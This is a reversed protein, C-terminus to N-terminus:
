YRQSYDKVMREKSTHFARVGKKSCNGCAFTLGYTCKNCVKCHWERWDRCKNCIACHSTCNGEVLSERCFSYFFGYDQPQLWHKFGRGRLARQEALLLDDYIKGELADEDTDWTYRERGWGQLTDQWIRDAATTWWLRAGDPRKANEAIIKSALCPSILEQRDSPDPGFIYSLDNMNNHCSGLQSCTCDGKCAVGSKHCGCRATRCAAASECTCVDSAARDKKRLEAEYIVEPGSTEHDYLTNSMM